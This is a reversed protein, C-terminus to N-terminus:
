YPLGESEKQKKSVEKVLTYKISSQDAVPNEIKETKVEILYEYGPVYDFGEINDYFLEWNNSGEKKILYCDMQTVGICEGRESAITFKETSKNCSTFNLMLIIFTFAVNKM